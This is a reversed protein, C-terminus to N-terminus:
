YVLGYKIDSKYVISLIILLPTRPKAVSEGQLTQHWSPGSKPKPKLNDTPTFTQYLPSPNKKSKKGKNMDWVNCM